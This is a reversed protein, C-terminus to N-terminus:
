SVDGGAPMDRLRVPWPRRGEGAREEGFRRADAERARILAKSYEGEAQARDTMRRAKAIQAECGRLLASYMAGTEVDAPDSIVYKAGALSDEAVDDLTLQTASDVSVVQRELLPPNAGVRGTAAAKPDLGIRLVAGELRSTWATGSGTLVASGQTSSVTGSTYEEINMPRPRRRYIMDTQYTNDPAPFFSIALTNLFNPDGRICYLRPMAVGRYIRQRDLWSNPHEPVLLLMHAILIITGVAQFACPLPYTDRYLTWAGPTADAGPNANETLTIRTDDIRRDVEYPINDLVISGLAAWSPWTGGVLTLLREYAGGTHDYSLTGTLYPGVIDLRFRDYYYTWEGASALDRLAELTARRGDRRAEASPTAGLYDITHDVLDKWTVMEIRM